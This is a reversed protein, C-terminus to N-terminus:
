PIRSAFSFCPSLVIYFIINKCGKRKGHVKLVAVARGGGDAINKGVTQVASSYHQVVNYFGGDDNEVVHTHINFSFFYHNLPSPFFLISFSEKCNSNFSSLGLALFITNSARELESKM